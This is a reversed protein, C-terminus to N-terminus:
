RQFEESKSAIVPSNESNGVEVILDAVKLFSGILPEIRNIKGLFYGLKADVINDIGPGM